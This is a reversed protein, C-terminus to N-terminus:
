PADPFTARIRNILRERLDAEDSWAIHNFQRTDFHVDNIQDARVSWIVPINIGQAFGAEYYVGGRPISHREGAVDIHGCTFDAVIFRSRRIEAIIADDIKNNHEIRDIRVPRFGTQIIAPEIADEYAANTEGSFWMAVFAQNTAIAGKRLAEMREFGNASLSFNGNDSRLYNLDELLGRVGSLERDSHAEIWALAGQRDRETEPTRTHAGLWSLRAGPRLNLTALFQLLRDPKQSTPMEPFQPLRRELVDSDIVPPDGSLVRNQDVIWTTLRAKFSADLGSLRGLASGTVCYRGGARDSIVARGGDGWVVISKAPEGWLPDAENM